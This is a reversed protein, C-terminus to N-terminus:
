VYASKVHSIFKEATKIVNRQLNGIAHQIYQKWTNGWLYHYMQSPLMLIAREYLVGKHLEEIGVRDRPEVEATAVKVLTSTLNWLPLDSCM